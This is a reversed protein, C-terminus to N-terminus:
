DDFVGLMKELAEAPTAGDISYTFDNACLVTVTGGRTPNDSALSMVSDPPLADLLRRFASGLAADERQQVDVPLM